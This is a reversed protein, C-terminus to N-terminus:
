KAAEKTLADLLREFGKRFHQSIEAAMIGRSYAEAVERIDPIETLVPIKEADCYKRTQDDGSDARNIAVGFPIKLERVTEVTLKLDHLGFPTPETVLLVYDSGRMSEIVPCSTGPPCDRITLEAQPASSKVSRIVPPSMVEGVNLLGQIFKIKGAM